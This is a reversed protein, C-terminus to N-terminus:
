LAVNTYPDTGGVAYATFELASTAFEQTQGKTAHSKLVANAITLTRGGGGTAAANLPDNLTAVITCPTDDPISFALANDGLTITVTRGKKRNVVLKAFPSVDGYFAQQTSMRGVSVDVVNDLTIASGGAPTVIVPSWGMNLTTPTSM